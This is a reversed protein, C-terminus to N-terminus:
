ILGCYRATNPWPYFGRGARHAREAAWMQELPSWRDATGKSRLLGPAYTRQFMLDMQLGGYYGNGTNSHWGGEFRHICLWQRRHPPNKAANRARVAIRKWVAIKADVDAPADALQRTLSRGMLRQWRWTEHRFRDIRRQIVWQPRVVSAPIPGGTTGDTTTAPPDPTTGARLSTAAALAIILACACALALTPKSSM